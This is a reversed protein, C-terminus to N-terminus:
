FNAAEVDVWLRSGTVRLTYDKKVLRSSQGDMLTLAEDSSKARM